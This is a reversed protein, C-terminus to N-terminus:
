QHNDLFESIVIKLSRTKYKSDFYHLWKKM